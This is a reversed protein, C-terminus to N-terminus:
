SSIIWCSIPTSVWLTAKLHPRTMLFERLFVLFESESYDQLRSKLPIM